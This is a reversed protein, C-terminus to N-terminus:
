PGSAVSSLPRDVDVLYTSLMIGTV